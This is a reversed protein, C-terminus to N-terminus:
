RGRDKDPQEGDGKVLKALRKLTIPESDQLDMHQQLAKCVRATEEDTTGLTDFCLSMMDGIFFQKATHRVVREMLAPTMSLGTAEAEAIASHLRGVHSSGEELGGFAMLVQEVAELKGLQMDLRERVATGEDTLSGDAGRLLKLLKEDAAHGRLEHKNLCVVASEVM